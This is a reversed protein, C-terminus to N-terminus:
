IPAESRSRSAPSENGIRPLWTAPASDALAWPNPVLETPLLHRAPTIVVVGDFFHEVYDLHTIRLRAELWPVRLSRAPFLYSPTASAEVQQLYPPYRDLDLPTAVIRENSLYDYTYALSYDAYLRTIRLAELRRVIDYDARAQGVSTSGLSSLTSAVGGQFYGSRNLWVLNTTIVLGVAVWQLTVRRVTSFLLASTIAALYYIYKGDYIGNAYPILIVVITGFVVALPLPSKVRVLRASNSLLALGLVVSAAVGVFVPVIWSGHEILRLNVLAPFGRVFMVRTHDAYSGWVVAHLSPFGRGVNDRLWPLSGCVAGALAYAGGRLVRAWPLRLVTWVVSAAAFGVIVPGLWWGVGACLGWLVATLRSPSEVFRQSLLLLLVGLLVIPNYFLMARTSFVVAFAPFCYSASAAFLAQRPPVSRVLIRWLVFSILLGEILATSRLALLSGPALAVFPALAIAELTGGYAQGWYFTSFHGHLVHLALLGAIAEDGGTAGGTIALLHFFL